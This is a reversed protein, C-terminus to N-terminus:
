MIGLNNVHIDNISFYEIASNALKSMSLRLTESCKSICLIYSLLDIIQTWSTLYEKRRRSM